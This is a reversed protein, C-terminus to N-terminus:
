VSVGQERLQRRYQILPTRNGTKDAEKELRELKAKASTAGNMSGSGSGRVVGEPQTTPKRAVRTEMDLRAVEGAFKALNKVKALGELRDANKGLAYILAAKNKAVQVLIAQQADNLVNAVQDHAADFDRVKLSARQTEMEAVDAQYERQIAEHEERQSAQRQEADQKRANWALLDREFDGAPDDREWYDDMNPKQGIDEAPASQRKLEENERKVDRYRRRLDSIHEPEDEDRIDAGGFTVVDSEDTEEAVNDEDAEGQAGEGESAENEEGAEQDEDLDLEEDETLDVIENAM